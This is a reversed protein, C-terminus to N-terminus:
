LSPHDSRGVGGELRLLSDDKTLNKQSIKRAKHALELQQLFGSPVREFADLLM